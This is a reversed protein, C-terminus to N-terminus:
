RFSQQAPQIAEVEIAPRMGRGLQCSRAPLPPAVQWEDHQEAPVAGILRRFRLGTRSSAWLTPAGGYRRTSASRPNNLWVQTWHVVPFAAFALVEPGAAELM